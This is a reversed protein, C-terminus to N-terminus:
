KDNSSIKKQESSSDMEVKERWIILYNFEIVKVKFLLLLLM